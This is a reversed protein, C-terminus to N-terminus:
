EMKRWWFINSSCYQQIAQCTDASLHTPRDEERRWIGCRSLACGLHSAAPHLQSSCPSTKLLSDVQSRSLVTGPTTDPVWPDNDFGEVWHLIMSHKFFRASHTRRHLTRQSFSAQRSPVWVTRSQTTPPRSHRIGQGQPHSGESAYLFNGFGKGPRGRPRALRESQAKIRRM